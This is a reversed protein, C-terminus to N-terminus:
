RGAAHYPREGYRMIMAGDAARLEAGHPTQEVTAGDCLELRPPTVAINSVAINSVAINSAAM